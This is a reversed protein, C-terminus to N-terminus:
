LTRSIVQTPSSLIGYSERHISLKLASGQLNLFAIVIYAAGLYLTGFLASRVHVWSVGTKEGSSREGTRALNATQMRVNDSAAHIGCTAICATCTGSLRANFLLM